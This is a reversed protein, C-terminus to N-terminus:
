MTLHLQEGYNMKEYVQMNAPPVPMLRVGGGKDIILYELYIGCGLPLVKKTGGLRTHRKGLKIADNKLANSIQFGLNSLPM